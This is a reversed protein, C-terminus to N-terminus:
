DMVTDEDDLAMFDETGQSYVDVDMYDNDEKGQAPQVPDVQMADPDDVPLAGRGRRFVTNITIWLCFALIPHIAM